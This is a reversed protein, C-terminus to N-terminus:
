SCCLIFTLDRESDRVRQEGAKEKLLCEDWGNKQKELDKKIRKETREKRQGRIQRKRGGEKDVKRINKKTASGRM